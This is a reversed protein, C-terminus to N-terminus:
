GNNEGETPTDGDDEGEAETIDELHVGKLMRKLSVNPTYYIKRRYVKEAGADEKTDSAHAQVGFRFTGILPLEVPHGTMVFNEFENCIADAAQYVIGKRMGSNAAARALLTDKDIKPLTVSRTLYANKKKMALKQLNSKIWIKTM